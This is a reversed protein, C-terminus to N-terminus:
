RTRHLETNRTIGTYKHQSKEKKDYSSLDQMSQPVQLKDRSRYMDNLKALETEFM